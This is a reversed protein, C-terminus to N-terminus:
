LKLINNNNNSIIIFQMEYLLTKCIFYLLFVFHWCFESTLYKCTFNLMGKFLERWMTKQVQVIYSVNPSIFICLMVVCVVNLLKVYKPPSINYIIGGDRVGGLEFTHFTSLMAHQKGILWNDVLLLGSHLSQIINSVM